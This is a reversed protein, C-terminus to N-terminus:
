DTENKLDRSMLDYLSDKLNKGNFLVQYTEETIPMEIGLKEKLERINKTTCIGEAIMKMGSLTEELSKGKGLQYGVFRNRSHPSIATTVLDGLGSLGSFTKAEAGLAVGLRKIEALGRTLIAGITNDGFGLGSAAGSVIAIINKVAAGIEVGIIDNSTYVRFTLNSFAQQVYHLVDDCCGAVV